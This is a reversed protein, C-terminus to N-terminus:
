EQAARLIATLSRDVDEETTSWSSVSIRMATHGQWVTGGCWCTGDAQVRTIVRTTHEPQGFSVLVQNLVVENLVHYGARRLGEAFRVALRCTREILDALGDRGLCRLAAWVEIGRARRSFDPTYQYPIREEDQMLYSGSTSMATRLSTADRVFIMGCDYPVNLWKHADIAWSDALEVGRTFHALRPSASAWLGFAGDIHVWADAARATTCIEEIPDFAGTNVNGAQLCVITPGSINPLVEARIRGQDDVPVRVVRDRGLGLMSLAKNVSAHVEDGVVVTIPPAEFLGRAEVDWGLRALLAHRAAALGCFNAATACTVFGGGCEPPLKLLDLCWRLAIKELAANVPSTVVLGAIQDWAGALWNAALTVPLSSGIVFGFYRAGASAVTAPSGVDDLIALVEESNTPSQPLDQDLQALRALSEPLPYVPRGNVQNRYRIGREAASRLLDDM